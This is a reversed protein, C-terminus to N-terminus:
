TPGFIDVAYGRMPCGAWQAGHYRCSRIAQQIIGKNPSLKCDESNSSDGARLSVSISTSESLTESRSIPFPRHRPLGQLSPMTSSSSCTYVTGSQSTEHPLPSNIDDENIRRTRGRCTRTHVRCSHERAERLLTGFTGQRAHRHDVKRSAVDNRGFEESHVWFMETSM